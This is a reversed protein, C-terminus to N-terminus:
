SEKRSPATRQDIVASLRGSRGVSTTGLTVSGLQPFRLVHLGETLRASPEFLLIFAAGSDGPRSLDVVDLLQLAGGGSVPIRSGVYPEFTAPLWQLPDTAARAATRDTATLGLGAAGILGLLGLFRRRALVVPTTM